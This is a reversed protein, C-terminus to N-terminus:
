AFFREQARQELVQAAQQGLVVQRFLRQLDALVQAAIGGRRGGALGSRLAHQADAKVLQTAAHRAGPPQGFGQLARQAGRDAVQGGFVAFPGRQVAHFTQAPQAAAGVRQDVGQLGARGVRLGAVAHGLNM